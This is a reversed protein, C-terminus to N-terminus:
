QLRQELYKKSIQKVPVWAAAMGILFVTIFVYVFDLLQMQVPYADVVFSGDGPGLSIIGFQQQLLCLIGGLTLGLIAGIISILLGETLFIRKILKKNAGMSSLVAIDKKKDLILM